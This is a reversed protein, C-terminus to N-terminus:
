SGTAHCLAHCLLAQQLQQYASGARLLPCDHWQALATSSFEELDTSLCFIWSRRATAITMPAYSCVQSPAVTSLLKSNLVQMWPNTCLLLLLGSSNLDVPFGRTSKTSTPTKCNIQPCSLQSAKIGLDHQETSTRTHLLLGVPRCRQQAGPNRMEQMQWLFVLCDRSGKSCPPAFRPTRQEPTVTEKWACGQPDQLKSSSEYCSM